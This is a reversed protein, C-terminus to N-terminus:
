TTSLKSRFPMGSQSIAATPSKSAAEFCLCAWKSGRSSQGKGLEQSVSHESGARDDSTNLSQGPRLSACPCLPAYRCGSSRQKKM